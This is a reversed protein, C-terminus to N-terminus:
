IFNLFYFHICISLPYFSSVQFHKKNKGLSVTSLFDRDLTSAAVTFSWPAVNTVSSPSPGDNGASCVVVINKAVAHFSGISIGDTLLAEKYPTSWGVSASIVDVGDYIAHDFAALLDAEHCGGTDLKNWCAKYAVLRARPSGGKAVGKGNGEVNAGGVFNGGATSLTHTGHGVFDRASRATAEIEGDEAERNKLFIRAGIL